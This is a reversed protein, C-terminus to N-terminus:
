PSVGDLVHKLSISFYKHMFFQERLRKVERLFSLAAWFSVSM